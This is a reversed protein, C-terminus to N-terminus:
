RLKLAVDLVPQGNNWIRFATIEGIHKQTSNVSSHKLLSAPSQVARYHSWLSVSELASISEPKGLHSCHIPALLIPRFSFFKHPEVFDFPCNFGSTCLFSAGCDYRFRCRHTTELSFAPSQSYLSFQPILCWVGGWGAAVMQRSCCHQIMMVRHYKTVAFNTPKCLALLILLIWTFSFFDCFLEWSTLVMLTGSILEEWGGRTVRWQEKMGCLVGAKFSWHKRALFLTSPQTARGPEGTQTCIEEKIEFPVLVPHVAVTKTEQTTPFIPM